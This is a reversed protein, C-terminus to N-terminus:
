GMIIILGNDNFDINSIILPPLVNYLPSTPSIAFWVLYTLFAM